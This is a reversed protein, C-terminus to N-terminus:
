AQLYQEPITAAQAVITALEVELAKYYPRSDITVQMIPAPEESAVFVRFKGQRLDNPNNTSAEFGVKFGISGEHQLINTQIAVMDNLVAQVGHPTVNESGLRRRISKLLALHLFDRGRSKNYFWWLPDSDANFTGIFKFGNDAIATEVGLEGREITGIHAAMLEQGETAGDTLSFSHYTKLGLIGAVQKNAFAWFPYGGHEFDTRVGLGLVRAVGDEYTGDVRKVWADIPIIRGSTITEFWDIAGQLGTGPAGVVAHAILANLIPPLAAVIPNAELTGGVFDVTVDFGDGVAFDPTGDAITFAIQTSYAVGVTANALANGLPDTVSFVGGGAPVAHAVTVVFEDGVVFDEAGDAITFNIGNSSNYATGVVALGDLSGDPKLVSFTGGNAAAIGCIVRWAGVAAGTDATLSGMTGDGTNGGVKEASSASKAGGICRVQYVGEKVGALYPTGAPTLTGGGTNGGAKAASSVNVTGGAGTTQWTYGPFGLLRPIVGLQKGARLLAYIGTGVNNAATVGNQAGVINAITAADDGGKAVRVAVIRASTQFEALQDDIATVAKYLETNGLKALAATDGSNFHVPENLPLFDADADDAPLVLGVVSLDSFQPPRPDTDTRNFIVGFTPSTM